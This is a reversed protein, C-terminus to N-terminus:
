EKRMVECLVVGQSVKTVAAAAAAVAPRVPVAAPTVAPQPGSSSNSPPGSGVGGSSTSGSAGQIKRLEAIVNAINRARKEPTAIDYWLKSGLLLGLQGGSLVCM